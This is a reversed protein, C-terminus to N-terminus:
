ELGERVRESILRELDEERVFRRRGFTLSPLEGSRLLDYVTPLSLRLRDQTEAVTLLKM